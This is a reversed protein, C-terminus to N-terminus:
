YVRTLPIRPLLPICQIIKLWPLINENHCCSIPESGIEEFDTESSSFERLTSSFKCNLLVRSGPSDSGNVPLCSPGTLLFCFLSFNGIDSLKDLSVVLTWSVSDEEDSVTFLRSISVELGRLLSIVRTFTFIYDIYCFLLMKYFCFISKWCKEFGSNKKRILYNKALTKYLIYLSVINVCWQSSIKIKLDHSIKWKISM